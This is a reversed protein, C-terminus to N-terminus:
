PLFSSRGLCRIVGGQSVRFPKVSGHNARLWSRRARLPNFHGPAQAPSRLSIRTPALATALVFAMGCTEHSVPESGVIAQLRSAPHSCTRNRAKYALELTRRLM